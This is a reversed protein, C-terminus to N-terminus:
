PINKRESGDALPKTEIIVCRKTGPHPRFGAAPAFGPIWVISDGAVVMPQLVRQNLPIRADILMKKVKRHGPGGYRDGPLRSRISLTDPVRAADVRVQHPRNRAATAGACPGLSASFTLGAEPVACEGPVPLHYCYGGLRQPMKRQLVLEGFQLGGVVLGPLDVSHGSKRSECLRILDDVNRATIGKLSGSLDLIALRMVRRRIAPHLSLLRHAPVRVIGPDTGNRMALYARRSEADLYDASERAHTASRALTELMRPNFHEALYPILEHRLRNRRLGLQSNTSDERWTQALSTLYEQIDDRPRELLPRIVLNDLVPHIGSLGEEGSGRLFRLLVSEAQDNLTHGVAIKRCGLRTATQRLFEYRALRAADELNRKGERALRRVDAQGSVFRIGLNLCLRRVFAEDADAEGDRLGHNLHAAALTIGLGPALRHLCLLLATSDAGGSVAVLVTDGPDLMTHKTLTRLVSREFIRVSKPLPERMVRVGDRLRSAGRWCGPSRGRLRRANAEPCRNQAVLNPGPEEKSRVWRLLRAGVGLLFLAQSWIRELAYRLPPKAKANTGGAMNMNKIRERGPM